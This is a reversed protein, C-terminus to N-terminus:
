GVRVLREEVIVAVEGNGKGKIYCTCANGANIERVLDTIERLNMKNINIKM